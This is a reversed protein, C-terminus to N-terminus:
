WVKLMKQVIRDRRTVFYIGRAVLRGTVERGSVDYVRYDGAGPVILDGGFITAGCSGARDVSQEQVATAVDVNGAIDTEGDRIESWAVLFNAPSAAVGANFRYYPLSDSVPFNGGIMTGSASIRQGFIAMTEERWVVLLCSGDYAVEPYMQNNPGTAILLRAGAPQGSISVFQGYIDLDSAGPRVDAWVVFFAEGTFVVSPNVNFGALTAAVTVVTDAPQGNEDLLRGYVGFPPDFNFWVVFSRARVGDFAIDPNLESRTQQAGICYGTDLVVGDTSVCSAVLWYYAGTFRADSWVVVYRAGNFAVAPDM